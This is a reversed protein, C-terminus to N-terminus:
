YSYNFALTSVGDVPNLFLAINTNESVNEPLLFLTIGLGALLLGSGSLISALIAKSKLEDQFGTYINWYTDFDASANMYDQYAPDVSNDYFQVADYFLYGGILTSVIGVGLSSYAAIKKININKKPTSDVSIIDSDATETQTEVNDSSIEKDEQKNDTTGTQEIPAVVTIAEAEATELPKSEFSTLRGTFDFIDDILADLNKYIGDSTKLTKGTETELIKSTLIYRNGISGIDGVVIQEASLLKGIELQYSEDSSGSFSFKLESLIKDRQNIEIVTYKGTRFLASSFLSIISKMDNESINNVSFDLVTIVPKESAYLSYVSLLILCAALTKRM